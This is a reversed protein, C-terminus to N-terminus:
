SFVQAYAYQVQFGEPKAVDNCSSLQAVGRMQGLIHKGAHRRALPHTNLGRLHRQARSDDGM